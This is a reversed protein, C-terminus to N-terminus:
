GFFASLPVPDLLDPLRMLERSWRRAQRGAEADHAVSATNTRPTRGLGACAFPGSNLMDSGSRLTDSGPREEESAGKTLTDTGFEDESAGERLTDIGPTCTPPTEVGGIPTVVPLAEVGAPSDDPGGPPDDPGVPSADAGAPPEM